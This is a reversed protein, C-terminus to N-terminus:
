KAPRTASSTVYRRLKPDWNLRDRNERYWKVLEADTGSADVVNVIVGRAERHWWKEQVNSSNLEAFLRDLADLHGHAAAVSAFTNGETGPGHEARRKTWTKDVWEDLDIDPLRSVAKYTWWANTGEIMYRRLAPFTAPDRLVAVASVWDTPLYREGSKLGEILIPKAEQVWGRKVVVSVLGRHRAMAAIVDGKQDDTAIREIATNVYLDCSGPDAKLLVDLHESGVKALMGVQPDTTSFIQQNNSAQLIQNVYDIAQEKTPKSPLKIKALATRNPGSANEPLDPAGANLAGGRSEELREQLEAVKQELGKVKARLDEV